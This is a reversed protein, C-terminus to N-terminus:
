ENPQDNPRDNPPDNPPTPELFMRRLGPPRRQSRTDPATAADNSCATPGTRNSDAWPESLPSEPPQVCYHSRLSPAADSSRTLVRRQPLLPVAPKKACTLGRSDTALINITAPEAPGVIIRHENLPETSAVGRGSDVGSPAACGSYVLGWPFLM